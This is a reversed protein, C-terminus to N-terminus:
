SATKPAKRKDIDSIWETIMAGADVLKRRLEEDDSRVPDLARRISGHHGSFLVMWAPNELSERGDPNGTEDRTMAQAVAIAAHPGCPDILLEAVKRYWLAGGGGCGQDDNCNEHATDFLIEGVQEVVDAAFAKGVECALKRLHVVADEDAALTEKTHGQAKAAASFVRREPWSMGALAQELYTMTM